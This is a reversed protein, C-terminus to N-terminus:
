PPCPACVWRRLGFEVDDVELGALPPLDVPAGVVAFVERADVPSGPRRRSRSPAVDRGTAAPAGPRRPGSPAARTTGSRTSVQTFRVSSRRTMSPPRRGRPRRLAVVEAAQESDVESRRRVRQPPSGLAITSTNRCRDPRPSAQTSAVKQDRRRRWFARSGRRPRPSSRHEHAVAEAAVRRAASSAASSGRPGRRVATARQAIAGAAAPSARRCRDSPRPTGRGGEAEADVHRRCSAIASAVSSPVGSPARSRVRGCPSPRRRDPM